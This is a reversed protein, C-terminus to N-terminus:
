LKVEIVKINFQEQNYIKMREVGHELTTNKKSKWSLNDTLDYLNCSNKGKRLRLGRGISQLNRIKSKSPSAFIINEISPINTGTSLTQYSAVIIADEDHEVLKRIRERDVTKIKGHIIYVNRKEGVLSKIREYLPIGHNDVFQFLVLTNGKCNLALKSIFNNRSENTVLFKIEDQYKLKSAQKRVEDPYNVIISKIKLNVVSGQDMLEKTTTVTYIRGFVGELVLNHIKKNDLTGTTGIRYKVNDLKCMIDVLSKSKFGHMEDGIIVDFQKFWSKPLTYISQWTSILVNSEFKKPFGSYLRQCNNEVSWKNHSSYDQFDSYMQEVLGTTPTILLIKRDNLLHWRVLSYIILSKGSSTPSLLSIRNNNIAKTIADIQYDRVEIKENKSYVNLKDTFEKINDNSYNNLNEEFLIELEYNESECFKKVYDVLGKYLTKKFPCYLRVKGDWIRAKYKPTFKANPFDYTFFDVLEAEVSMEDSYVRVYAEDLKEIYVKTM